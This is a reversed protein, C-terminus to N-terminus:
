NVVRNVFESYRFVITLSYAEGTAAPENRENTLRFTAANRGLGRLNDASVRSPNLPNYIIQDGTRSSIPILAITQDSINNTPISGNILDTKILFSEINNFAAVSDGDHSENTVTTPVIPVNRSDFGLLVRCSNIGNFDAFSGIYPFSLVIKQTSQNGSINIVDAPLGQNVLSKSIQTNLSSVSYLGDSLTVTYLTGDVGYHVYFKNNGLRVSVNNVSNWVTASVVEATCDFSNQPFSIPQDTIVSFLTGDASKNIPNNADASSFIMSFQKKSILSTM